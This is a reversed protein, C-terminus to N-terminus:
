IAVRGRRTRSADAVRTRSVRGRNDETRFQRVGDLRSVPGNTPPNMSVVEQEESKSTRLATQPIFLIWWHRWTSAKQSKKSKSM